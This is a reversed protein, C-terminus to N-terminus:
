GSCDSEADYSSGVGRALAVQLQQRLMLNEVRRSRFVAGLTHILLIFLDRM